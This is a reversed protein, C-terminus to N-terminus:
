SVLTIKKNDIIISKKTGTLYYKKNNYKIYKKGNEDKNIKRTLIKTKNGGRIPLVKDIVNREGSFRITLGMRKLYEILQLKEEETIFFYHIGDTYLSDDIKVDNFVYDDTGNSFRYTSGIVNYDNRRTSYLEEQANHSRELKYTNYSIVIPTHETELSFSIHHIKNQKFIHTLIQQLHTEDENKIYYLDVNGNNKTFLNLVEDKFKYKGIERLTTKKHITSRTKNM